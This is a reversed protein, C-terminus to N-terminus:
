NSLKLAKLITEDYFLLLKYYLLIDYPTTLTSASISHLANKYIFTFRFM